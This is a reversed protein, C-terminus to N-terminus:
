INSFSFLFTLSDILKLDVIEFIFFRDHEETKKNFIKWNSSCSFFELDIKWSSTLSLDISYVNDISSLLSKYIKFFLILALHSFIKCSIYKEFTLISEINLVAIRFFHSWNSIFFDNIFFSLFSFFILLHLCLKCILISRM